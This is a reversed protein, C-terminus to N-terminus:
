RAPASRPCSDPAKVFVGELLPINESRPMGLVSYHVRITSIGVIAASSNYECNSLLVHLIIAAQRGSQVVVAQFSSVAWPSPDDYPCCGPSEVDPVARADSIGILGRWYSPATEVGTLTLAVKGDNAVWMFMTVTKGDVYDFLRIQKDDGPSSAPDQQRVGGNVGEASGPILPHGLVALFIYATVLGGIAV